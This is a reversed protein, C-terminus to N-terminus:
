DVRSALFQTNGAECVMIQAMQERRSANFAAHIDWRNGAPEAVFVAACQRHLNITVQAVTMGSRHRLFNMEKFTLEIITAYSLGDM